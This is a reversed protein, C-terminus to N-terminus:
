VQRVHRCAEIEGAPADISELKVTAQRFAEDVAFKWSKPDLYAEFGARAVERAVLANFAGPCLVPGRALADRLRRGPHPITM